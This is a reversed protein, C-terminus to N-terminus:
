NWIGCWQKGTWMNGTRPHQEHRNVGKLKVAKGNITFLDGHVEVKRVGFRSHITEIIENRDNKLNLHLDYLSPTEASWILPQNLTTELNIPNNSSGDAVNIKKSLEIDIIKGSITNGSIIAEVTLNKTKANSRNEITAKIKVLANAYNKDPDATVTFDQIFSRPRVFLDVDRFIGSM